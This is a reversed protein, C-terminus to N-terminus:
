APAARGRGERRHATRRRGQAGDQRGDQGGARAAGQVRHHALVRKRDRRAPQNVHQAWAGVQLLRAVCRVGQGQHRGLGTSARLSPPTPRSRDLRPPFATDTSVQRPASPPRHRGLGTSARLSPCHKESVALPSVTSACALLSPPPQIHRSPTGHNFTGLPLTTNVIACPLSSSSHTALPCVTECRQSPHHKITAQVSPM